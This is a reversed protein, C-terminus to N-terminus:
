KGKRTKYFEEEQGVVGSFTFLAFSIGFALGHWFNNIYMTAQACDWWWWVGVGLFLILSLVGKITNM